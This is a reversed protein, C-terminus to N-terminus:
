QAQREFQSVQYINQKHTENATEIASTIESSVSFPSSFEKGVVNANMNNIFLESKIGKNNVVEDLIEPTVEYNGIFILSTFVALGLLFLGLGINQIQKM